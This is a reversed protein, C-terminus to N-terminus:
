NSWYVDKDSSFGKQNPELWLKSPIEHPLHRIDDLIFKKGFHQEVSKTEHKLSIQEDAIKWM